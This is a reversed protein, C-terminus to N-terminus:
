DDEPGRRQRRSRRMEREKRKMEMLEDRQEPTLLARVRLLTGLMAKRGETKIAGIKDVQQMIAAEDPTDQELLARMHELDPRLRARMEKRAEGAADLIERVQDRTPADLDLRDIYRELRPGHQKRDCDGGFGAEAVGALWCLAAAISVIVLRVKM